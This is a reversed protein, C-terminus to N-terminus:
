GSAGRPSRPCLIRGASRSVTAGVSAPAPIPPVVPPWGHEDPRDSDRSRQPTAAESRSHLISTGRPLGATPGCTLGAGPGGRPGAAGPAAGLGASHFPGCCALRRSHSAPAGGCPGPSGDGPPCAAGPTVESPAQPGRQSGLAEGPPQVTEQRTSQGWTHHVPPSPAAPVVRPALDRLVQWVQLFSLGPM